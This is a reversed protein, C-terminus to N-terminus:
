FRTGDSRGQDTTKPRIACLAAEARAWSLADYAHACSALAGLRATRMQLRLMYALITSAIAALVLITCTAGIAARFNEANIM